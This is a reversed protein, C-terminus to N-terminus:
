NEKEGCNWQKREMGKSSPLPPQSICNNYVSFLPWLVFCFTSVSILTFENKVCNRLRCNWMQKTPPFQGWVGLGGVSGLLTKRPWCVQFMYFEPRTQNKPGLMHVLNGDFDLSKISIWCFHLFEFIGRECHTPAYRHTHKTSIQSDHLHFVLAPFSLARTLSQQQQRRISVEAERPPFWNFNRWFMIIFVFRKQRRNFDRIFVNKNCAFLRRRHNLHFALLYIEFYRCV